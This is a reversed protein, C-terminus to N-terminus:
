CRFFDAASFGENGITWGGVSFSGQKGQPVVFNVPWESGYNGSSPVIGLHPANFDFM